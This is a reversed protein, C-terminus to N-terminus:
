SLHLFPRDHQLRIPRKFVSANGRRARWMTFLHRRKPLTHVAGHSQGLCAAICLFLRVSYKSM